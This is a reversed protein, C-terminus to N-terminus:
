AQLSLWAIYVGYLGLFLVGGTRSIVGIRFAYPVLMIAVALMIWVDVQAIQGNFPIPAVVATVGLIGLINFFNSGLINGIIVDTERRRAAAVTAALEPLSTGVAVITLGIVAESVGFDRAMMVAGSVLLKAGAVLLVLSVLAWPIMRALNVSKEPITGEAGNKEARVCYIMYGTILALFLVGVPRDIMGYFSLGALLLSAMLVALTERKVEKQGCPIACIVAGLGMILLVNCINSGVINGLAIESADQLAAQLSVLLEPTSTGFGVIVVSVLLTSLGIRRAIATSSQVLWEGGFFLLVLGAAIMLIDTM